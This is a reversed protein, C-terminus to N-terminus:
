AASESGDASDAAGSDAAGSGSAEDPGADVDRGGAAKVRYLGLDAAAILDTASRGDGPYTAVGISAAIPVAGHIEDVFPGVLLAELIRLGAQRAAAFDTEPLIIAFEDGGYRAAVDSARLTSRVREAIWGLVRDGFLHGFTDNVLKFDDLDLMLVGLPRRSRQARVVEAGLRQHLYRHNYFGTLQDRDALSRADEYLRANELAMAAENAMTRAIALRQEDFEVADRAMLEVLGIAQGDAVLPLMALMRLREGRLLAVEAPDAAPDNADIVVTVQDRLVRLTEPYGAVDFSEELEELRVEPFYGMSLVRAATRDWYSIACEDVGMAAALHAAILNAVQRSDLSASLASSMDLLRRLEGALADSRALLRASELATAAHDALIMLLRLDDESFQDIGLKSLTIVGVVTEDYRMPVVLMSEDVDDTGTITAGRPDANANGVLIPEGHQAVWGTFGKGFTTRLLDFDVMEYAGVRGEFAIPVVQDPPEIVYVRANHYDLIRRTEEVVARGVSEVTSARSMRAAAAQLVALQEARSETEAFLEANHIAISAHNGLATVFEIESPTWRRPERSVSSLAGIIRGRHILPVVVIAAFDIIGDYREFGPIPDTGLDDRVLPRETRLVEAFWGEDRRFRPMRSATEDSIGAWATLALDDGHLLRIVTGDARLARNTEDVILRFIERRDLTETLRRAIELLAHLRAGHVDDPAEVRTDAAAGARADAAAGLLRAM